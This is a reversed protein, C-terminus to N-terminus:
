AGDAIRGRFKPGPSGSDPESDSWRLLTAEVIEGGMYAIFAERLAAKQHDYEPLNPNVNDALLLWEVSQGAHVPAGRLIFMMVHRPARRKICGCFGLEVCAVHMLADFGKDNM